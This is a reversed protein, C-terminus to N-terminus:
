NLFWKKPNLWLALALGGFYNNSKLKPNQSEVELNLVYFVAANLFKQLLCRSRIEKNNFLFYCFGLLSLRKNGLIIFHLDM